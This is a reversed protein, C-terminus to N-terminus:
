VACDMTHHTRRAFLRLRRSMGDNVERSRVAM